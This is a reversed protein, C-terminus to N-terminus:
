GQGRQYFRREVPQYYEDLTAPIRSHYGLLQRMKESCRSFYADGMLRVYDLQPKVFPRSLTITLGSRTDTSNNIGASHWTNSNFLVIDGAKGILRVAHDYFFDETPKEELVHSGPLLWTAGNELTFDDLMVLLNIILNFNQTYTRVDRHIYSVYAHDHPQNLFAGFSNLIFPGSFYDTLIEDFPLSELLQEMSTYEGLLHHCTGSMIESIGNKCQVARRQQYLNRLDTHLTALTAANLINRGIYYSQTKLQLIAHQANLSETNM